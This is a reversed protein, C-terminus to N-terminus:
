RLRFEIYLPRHDSTQITELVDPSKAVTELFDTRFYVHDLPRGFQTAIQEADPFAARVLRMERAAADLHAIRAPSWTNFDGALIAPGPHRKIIETLRRLQERFAGNGPRFNIGHLNTILLKRQSPHLHYTTILSAKPTGALPELGNTLLPRISAPRASSATLVGAYADHDAQYLNPALAWGYGPSTGLVEAARDTLLFEQLLILNPRRQELIAQFDQQWGPDGGKKHINWVLVRVSRENLTPALRDSEHEIIFPTGVPVMGCAYVSLCLLAVVLHQM